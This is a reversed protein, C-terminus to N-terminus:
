CPLLEPWGISVEDIDLVDDEDGPVWLLEFALLEQQGSAAAVEQLALQMASPSMIAGDGIAETRDGMLCAVISVVAITPKSLDASRGLQTELEFKAAEMIVDRDFRSLAQEDEGFHTALGGCSLWQQNQRLMILSAESALEAFGDATSCDISSTLKDLTGIVSKPGRDPCRFAAGVKVVTGGAMRDRFPNKFNLNLGQASVAWLTVMACRVATM